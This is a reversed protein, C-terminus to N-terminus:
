DWTPLDDVRDANADCLVYDCGHTRACRHIALVVEPVTDITAAASEDPDDPVWMLRGYETRHAIVGPATDLGGTGLHQPLHLQHLGPLAAVPRAPPRRVGRRHHHRRRPPRDPRTRRGLTMRHGTPCVIDVTAVQYWDGDDTTLDPYVVPDPDGVVVIAVAQRGPEPTTALVISV